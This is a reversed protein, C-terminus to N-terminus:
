KWLIKMLEELNTQLSEDKLKEEIEAIRKRDKREDVIYIIMLVEIMAGAILLLIM